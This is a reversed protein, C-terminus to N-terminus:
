RKKKEFKFDDLLKIIELPDVMEPIGLRKRISDTLQAHKTFQDNRMRTKPSDCSSGDSDEEDAYSELEEEEEEEEDPDDSESPEDDDDSDGAGDDTGSVLGQVAELIIVARRPTEIEIQYNIVDNPQFDTAQVVHRAHKKAYVKLDDNTEAFKPLPLMHKPYTIGFTQMDISAHVDAVAYYCSQDGNKFCIPVVAKYKYGSSSVTVESTDTMKRDKVFNLPVATYMMAIKRVATDLPVGAIVVDDVEEGCLIEDHEAKCWPKDLYTIM